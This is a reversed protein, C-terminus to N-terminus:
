PPRQSGASREAAQKWAEAARGLRRAVVVLRLLGVLAVVGGAGGVGLALGGGWFWGSLAAAVGLLMMVLPGTLTV